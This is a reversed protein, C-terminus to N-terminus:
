ASSSSDDKASHKDGQLKCLRNLEEMAKTYITDIIQYPYPDELSKLAKLGSPDNEDHEKPFPYRGGWTIFEDLKDMMEKEEDTFKMNMDRATLLRQLGHKMLSLTPEASGKLPVKLKSYDVIADVSDADNLWMGTIIIGRFLNEMSYGMLMMFVRYQDIDIFDKDDLNITFGGGPAPRILTNLHNESELYAERMKDASNKLTTAMNFWNTGNQFGAVNM